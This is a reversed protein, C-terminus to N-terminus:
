CASALQADQWLSQPSHHACATRELGIPHTPRLMHRFVGLVGFWIKTTTTIHTRFPFFKSFKRYLNHKSTHFVDDYTGHSKHYVAFPIVYSRGGMIEAMLCLDSGYFHFGNLDISGLPCLERRIVLFNEDLSEVREPLSGSFDLDHNNQMIYRTRGSRRKRFLKWRHGANGALMWNADHRDLHRLTNILDDYNDKVEIDDHCYIIYRGQSQGLVRRLWGYGDAVNGQSNDFVLFETNTASFGKASFSKLCLAYREWDVVLTVVTFEKAWSSQPHMVHLNAFDRLLTARADLPKSGANNEVPATM